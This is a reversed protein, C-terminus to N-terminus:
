TGPAPCPAASPTCGARPTSPSSTPRPRVGRRLHRHHHLGQRGPGRRHGRGGGRQRRRRGRVPTGAKLGTLAAAEATIEGTVEPSEYVKGLLAPDIDLKELVERAGAATPCTWCSCGPPTPSRPPSSAPSCLVACLGQAAPHPRVQRVAGAPQQAGVPDQLRYLRHPRPQRHNRDAARPGGAPHDGRVRRRHAPRVLHHLPAAGQGGQGADGPRADPRLHGRRQGRPSDVGSQECDGHRSPRAPLTGGTWPTRSPGATASRICPPVGGTASAVGCPGGPRFLVTKTGSTGLDIGIVYAM